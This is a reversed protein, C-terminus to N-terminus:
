SPLLEAIALLLSTIPLFKSKFNKEALRNKLNLTKKKLFKLTNAESSPFSEYKQRWRYITNPSVNYKRAVQSVSSGPPDAEALIKIIQDITFKTQRM